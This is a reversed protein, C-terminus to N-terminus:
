RSLRRTHAPLRLCHHKKAAQAYGLAACFRLGFNLSHNRLLNRCESFSLNRRCHSSEFAALFVTDRLLCQANIPLSDAAVATSQRLLEFSLRVVGHVSDVEDCERNHDDQRHPQEPKVPSASRAAKTRIVIRREEHVLQRQLNENYHSEAGKAEAAATESGEDHRAILPAVVQNLATKGVVVLPSALPFPSLLRTPAVLGQNGKALRFLGAGGNGAAKTRRPV